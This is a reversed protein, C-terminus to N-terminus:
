LRNTLPDNVQFGIGIPLTQEISMMYPCNRNQGSVKAESMSAMLAAGRAVALEPKEVLEVKDGFWDRLRSQVLLMKSSGGVMLVQVVSILAILHLIL